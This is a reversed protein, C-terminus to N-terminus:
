KSREAENNKEMAKKYYKDFIAQKQEVTMSALKEDAIEKAQKMIELFALFNRGAQNM